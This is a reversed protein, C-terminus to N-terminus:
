VYYSEKLSAYLRLLKDNQKTWECGAIAKKRGAIGMKIAEEPYDLLLRVVRALEAPRDAPVLRGHQFDEMLERVVPLDSAIVPTGCAMSEIIKLPCCGQVLNRRNEKLPALSAVAHQVWSWLEAKSMRFKWTVRNDVGLKAALKKYPKVFRTRHAACVVLQLDPFDQLYKLTKFATDLGQWRQLAGFYIIYQKPAGAPRPAQDPINTGNQIVTVREFGRSALYQRTVASPVVIADAHQLCYTELHQIKELTSTPLNPYRFPLEVSPLGNVEFVKKTGPLKEIIPWGSWIDRFHAVEPCAEQQLIHKLSQTYGLARQLFNVEQQYYVRHRTQPPLEAPLLEANGLTYLLGGRFHRFLTGAFQEIHTASGKFSPYVDYAAYLARFNM